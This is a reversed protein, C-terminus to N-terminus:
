LLSKALRVAGVADVSYGDAGIADAFGADGGRRGCVMQRIPLNRERLRVTDEMRIMTTTMLASLGIIRANHEACRIIDEAKWTRVPMWSTLATTASSCVCYEQLTTFIARLPLWCLSLAASRAARLEELHPRLRAFATQMTEASRILQPLFYERREYRAGM